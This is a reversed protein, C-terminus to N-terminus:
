AHKGVNVKILEPFLELFVGVLLSAGQPCVKGTKKDFARSIATKAQFIPRKWETKPELRNARNM